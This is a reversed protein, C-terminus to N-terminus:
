KSPAVPQNLLHAYKPSGDIVKYDNMQAHLKDTFSVKEPQEVSRNQILPISDRELSLREPTIFSGYRSSSM